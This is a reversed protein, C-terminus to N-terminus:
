NKLFDAIREIYTPPIDLTPQSNRFKIKETQKKLIDITSYRAAKSREVDLAHLDLETVDLSALASNIMLSKMIKSPIKVSSSSKYNQNIKVQKYFRSEQNNLLENNLNSPLKMKLLFTELAKENVTLRDFNEEM